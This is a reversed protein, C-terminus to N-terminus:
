TSGRGTGETGRRMDEGGSLGDWGVGRVRAELVTVAQWGRGLDSGQGHGHGAQTDTGRTLVPADHAVGAAAVAVVEGVVGVVEVLGEFM